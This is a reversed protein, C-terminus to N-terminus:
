YFEDANLLPQESLSDRFWWRRCGFIGLFGLAGVVALIGLPTLRITVTWQM